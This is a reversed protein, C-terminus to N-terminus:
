YKNQRDEDCIAAEEGKWGPIAKSLIDIYKEMATERSMNGLKQWANWNSRATVKLAMPQSGYCPGELAIKSLGYLELKLDEDIRDDDDDDDCKCSVFVLAEGFVRELETREVGEWDDDIFEDDKEVPNERNEEIEANEFLIESIIQKETRVDGGVSKKEEECSYIEVYRSQKRREELHVIILFVSVSIGVVCLLLIEVADM